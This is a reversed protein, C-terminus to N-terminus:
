SAPSPPALEEPTLARLVRAPNGGAVVGAPLDSIVVSGAAVITDDGISVGRMVMSNMGIWCRRGIRVPAAEIAIPADRDLVGLMRRFHIERVHPNIPHSNNDFVMVGHAILTAEGIEISAQASLIAGDGVYVFAGVSMRGQPEVRLCGRVVAHDGLTLRDLAASNIVRAALGLRVHQGVEAQSSFRRWIEVLVAADTDGVVALQEGLAAGAEALTTVQSFTPGSAFAHDGAGIAPTSM